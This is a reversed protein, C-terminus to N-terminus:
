PSHTPLTLTFGAEALSSGTANARLLADELGRVVPWSNNRDGSRQARIIMEPPVPVPESAAHVAEIFRTHAEALAPACITASSSALRALVDAFMTQRTVDIDPLIREERRGKTTQLICLEGHRWEVSGASGQLTIVPELTRETTHSAGIWFEIGEPSRAQVVSTDFTDISHARLLEANTVTVAAATDPTPGAFYLCLNVFHAFANNLLSDKVPAGDAVMRGAWHNRGFYAESRPWLGIFRVTQLRGIAGACLEEKLWQNIPCYIDQFGVAVWRGTEQEVTRMQAVEELSGALPKEVLVNAGARLAAITMRAHWQIGTPILCLDLQGALEQLMSQYDRFIRCGHAQLENETVREEEPNIVVAAALEIEGRDRASRVLSLYISGYGSVGILAVRPRRSSSSAPSHTPSKMIM